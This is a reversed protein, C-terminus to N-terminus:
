GTSLSKLLQEIDEPTFEYEKNCYHCVPKIGEAMSSLENIGLLKLANGFREKTCSCFYEVQIEQNIEFGVDKFIMKSLIDQWSLGMDLLDTIYPTANLNSTIKDAIEKNAEPMQQILYGGAASIQGESSFLVGLSIATPIQESKDYYHVLDEAIEGNVLECTGTVPTNLYLDKIINLTGNGLLRGINWNNSVNTDFFNPNKAYGRVKGVPEYIVIAGKLPGEAEVNITLGSSKHKLDSGMLLAATLLRGLLITPAPSMKHVNMASQVVATSDVAFFRFQENFATGRLLIDNNTM